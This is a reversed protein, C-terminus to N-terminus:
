VTATRDATHHALVEYGDAHPAPMGADRLAAQIEPHDAMKHRAQEDKWLSVIMLGDDTRVVTSSIGGMEPAIREAVKEVESMRERLEDPDGAFRMISLVMM